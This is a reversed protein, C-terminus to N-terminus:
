HKPHTDEPIQNLEFLFDFFLREKAMEPETFARADTVTEVAPTAVTERESGRAAAWKAAFRVSFVLLLLAFVLQFWCAIREREGHEPLHPYALAFRGSVNRVRTAVVLGIIIYAVAFAYKM